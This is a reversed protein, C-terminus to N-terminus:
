LKSGLSTTKHKAAFYKPDTFYDILITSLEDAKELPVWHASSVGFACSEENESSNLKEILADSHFHFPKKTGWIYLTKKM